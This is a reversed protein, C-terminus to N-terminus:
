SATAPPAGWGAEEESPASLGLAIAGALAGIAAGRLTHNTALGRSVEMSLVEQRPLRVPAAIARRNGDPRVVITDGALVLPGAARILEGPGQGTRALVREPAGDAGFLM